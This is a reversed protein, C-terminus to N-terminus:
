SAIHSWARYARIHMVPDHVRLIDVGQQCLALSIGLTELDRGSFSSASFANMFSKRSHGVLLRLGCSRLVRCHQLLEMSQLATKGFGIGPDVIIRNLDLGSALWQEIKKDLWGTIQLVAGRDVPLLKEPDAPVSVSHMAVVDCKAERVLSIIEPSSLGSVDNVMDVGYRFSKELTEAHRSDISIRPRVRHNGLQDQVRQLVPQLRCWEEEPGIQPARPRTSEAGIDLIQVHEGALSELYPELAGPDAWRGGDSFSDPTINLVGMWLPVPAIDETLQFITKQQGPIVLDPQLHLLPTLVFPRELIGHHPIVLDGTHVTQDHWLLVDIDMVRPSWRKGARRGMGAEISKARDLAEAPTWGAEGSIVCNLYPKNWEPAAGEPLLAPTEVVPSISAIRFGESELRRVANGLNAKRDGENSGLGLYITM